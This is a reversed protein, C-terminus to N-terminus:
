RNKCSSAHKEDQVVPLASAFCAASRVDEASNFVLNPTFNEASPLTIQPRPGVGSFVL